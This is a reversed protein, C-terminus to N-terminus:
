SSVKVRGPWVQSSRVLGSRFTGVGSLVQSCVQLGMAGEGVLRVGGDDIIRVGTVRVSYM